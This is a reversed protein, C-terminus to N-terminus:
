YVYGFYLKIFDLIACEKEDILVNSNDYFSIIHKFWDNERNGYLQAGILDKVIFDIMKDDDIANEFTEDLDGEENAIMNYIDKVPISADMVLPTLINECVIKAGERVGEKNLIDLSAGYYFHGDWNFLVSAAINSNVVDYFAKLYDTQYGPSFYNESWYQNSEDLFTDIIGNGDFTGDVVEFSFKFVGKAYGDRLVIDSDFLFSDDAAIQFNNYEVDFKLEFEISMGANLSLNVFDINGDAGATFNVNTKFYLGNIQAYGDEDEDGMSFKENVLSIEVGSKISVSRSFLLDENKMISQKVIELVAYLPYSALGNVDFELMDSSVINGEFGSVQDINKVAENYEFDVIEINEPGLINCGSLIVICLVVLLKKM